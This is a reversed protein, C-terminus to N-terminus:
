APSLHYVGGVGAYHGRYMPYRLDDTELDRLFTKHPEGLRPSALAADLHENMWAIEEEAPYGGSFTASFGAGECLVVFDRATYARAIPCRPGDTSATFAAEVSQGHFLEQVVMLVYAAYLHFYVSDRNYVMVVARGRSTLVRRFERLLRAPDTTHHLVGQCNIYDVSSSAIPLTADRDSSRHLEYSREDIGHLRLRQRALLLANRSVDIGIVKSPNSYLLFGTIDNGPGCGFDLITEGAHDGWLGTFERFLPYKRFRWELHEESEQATRFAVDTVLWENWYADV